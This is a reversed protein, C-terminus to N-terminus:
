SRRTQLEVMRRYRASRGMLDDHTGEASIRGDDIVVIRDARAVTSLRHAIILSTRGETLTELSRQIFRESEADLNSTAEDLILIKPDALIARAITLRQRQGGSLRVGREGIITDYGRELGDIFGDANALRAAEVVEERTAHRGGYGINGAITDDFLFTDQEVIGLLQRYSEVDIDRLDVGDLEIRGVQPDYFRAILNCLTTKGSGSLGVLAVTQGAAIDLSVDFLVPKDSGSYAFEVNHLTIRGSVNRKDLHIAGAVRPMEVPEHLLDLTRDLGALSNQLATASQALTAIPGLLATLYALFVVLDGVSFVEGATILGAQLREADTLVRSGGYWLLVATATPILVAWAADVGRMWWWALLEQRAMLHSSQTFRSAETRHRAFGRIVRIGGFSETSQGDIAQRTTRIDRWFPRIRGVWTRHTFWVIPILALSGLLMRWDVFILVLLSGLFQIIARWPNYIMSFVLDGIGGADERLISAVGGSKIQYVRHLPLRVVHEFLRKRAFVAVRKSIRTAQWRGWMGVAMSVVSLGVMGIAIWKLLVRPDSPLDIWPPGGPPLTQGSLVGDFVLKTGYLPVLGLLTALSLAALSMLMTSRHGRLMAWFERFLDGFGRGRHVSRTKSTPVLDAADAQADGAQRARVQERYQDYRSRSSRSRQSM